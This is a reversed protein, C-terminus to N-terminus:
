IDIYRSAPKTLSIAGRPQIGHWGANRPLYLRTAAGQSRRESSKRQGVMGYAPATDILSVGRDVSAQIAAISAAEDTGGWM